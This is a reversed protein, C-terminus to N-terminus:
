SARVVIRGVLLWVGVFAAGMILYVVNESMPTEQSIVRSFGPEQATVGISPSQRSTSLRAFRLHKEARGASSALFWEWGARFNLDM